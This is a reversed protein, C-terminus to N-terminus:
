EWTCLAAAFEGLRIGEGCFSSHRGWADMAYISCPPDSVFMGKWSKSKRASPKLNHESILGHLPIHLHHTKTDTGNPRVDCSAHSTVQEGVLKTLVKQLLPNLVPAENPQLVRKNPEFFLAMQIAKSGKITDRFTKDVSQAFLLDQMPLELLIAELLEPLAFVEKVPSAMKQEISFQCREQDSASTSPQAKITRHRSKGSTSEKRADLRSPNSPAVSERGWLDLGHSLGKSSPVELCWVGILGLCGRGM